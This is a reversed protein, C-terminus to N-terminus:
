SIRKFYFFFIKFLLLSLSNLTAFGNLILNRNYGGEVGRVGFLIKEVNLKLSSSYLIEFQYSLFFILYFTKEKKNSHFSVREFELLHLM